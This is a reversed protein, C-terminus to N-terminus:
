AHGGHDHAVTADAKGGTVGLMSLDHHFEHFTNFIDGAHHEVFAQGPVPASKGFIKIRKLGTLIVSIDGSLYAM